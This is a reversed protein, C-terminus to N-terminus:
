AHVRVVNGGFGLVTMWFGGDVDALARVPPDTRDLNVAVVTLGPDVTGAMADIGLAPGVSTPQIFMREVDPPDISPPDPLPTAVCGACLLSLLLLFRLMLSRPLLARALSRPASGQQKATGTQELKFRGSGLSVMPPTM